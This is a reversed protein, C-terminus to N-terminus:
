ECMYVFYVCMYRYHKVYKGSSCACHYVENIFEYPLDGNSFVEWMAVGFSWVDSAETYVSDLISEPAM